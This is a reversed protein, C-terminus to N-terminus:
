NYLVCAYWFGDAGRSVGVQATPRQGWYCCNQIADQASVSSWGVGEFRAGGLGGGIHGRIGGRAARQAKMQALGSSAAEISNSVVQRGANITSRVPTGQAGFYYRTQPVTSAVSYVSQYSIAASYSPMASTFTGQPQSVPGAFQGPVGTAYTATPSGSRMITGSAYTAPSVVTRSSSVSSGFNVTQTGCSTCGAQQASTASCNTVLALATAAVGTVMLNTLNRNIM